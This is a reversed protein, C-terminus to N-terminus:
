ARFETLAAALAKRDAATVYYNKAAARAQIRSAVTAVALLGPLANHAATLMEADVETVVHAVETDGAAVSAVSRVPAGRRAALATLQELTMPSRSSPQPPAFQM